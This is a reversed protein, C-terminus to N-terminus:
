EVTSGQSSGHISRPDRKCVQGVPFLILFFFAFQKFLFTEIVILISAVASLVLIKIKKFGGVRGPGGWIGDM